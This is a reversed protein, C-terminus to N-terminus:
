MLVKNVIGLIVSIQQLFKLIEHVSGKFPLVLKQLGLVNVRVRLRSLIPKDSATPYGIGVEFTRLLRKSKSHCFQWTFTLDYLYRFGIQNKRAICYESIYLYTLFFTWVSDFNASSVKHSLYIKSVRYLRQCTKLCVLIYRHHIWFM